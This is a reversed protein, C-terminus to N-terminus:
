DGLHARPRGWAVKRWPSLVLLALAEAAPLPPRPLTSHGQTETLTETLKTAQNRKGSRRRHREKRAMGNCLDREEIGQVRESRKTVKMEGRAEETWEAQIRQASESSEGQGTGDRWKPGEEERREGRHTASSCGICALAM